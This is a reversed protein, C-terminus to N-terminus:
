PEITSRVLQIEVYRNRQRGARTWNEDVPQTEGWSKVAMIEMPVGMSALYDWIAYARSDSLRYNYNEDAIDSTHAQILVRKVTTDNEFVYQAAGDLIDKAEQGLRIGDHDFFIHPLTIFEIGGQPQGQTMARLKPRSDLAFALNDNVIASDPVPEPPDTVDETYEESNARPQDLAPTTASQNNQDNIQRASAAGSFIILILTIALISLTSNPLNNSLTHTNM